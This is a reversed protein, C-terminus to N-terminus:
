YRRLESLEFLASVLQDQLEKKSLSKVYRVLEIYEQQEREEQEAEYREVEALFNEAEQPEATFFLAIMHKCVVRRGAAFPCTCTSKRPHDKEIRVAYEEGNSGSVTGEYVNNDTKKWSIVKGREYYDMGRWVSAGSAAEILGM